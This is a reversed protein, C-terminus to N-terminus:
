DLVNSCRQGITIVDEAIKVKESYFEYDQTGQGLQGYGNKGSGWLINNEDIYYFNSPAGTRTIYYDTINLPDMKRM